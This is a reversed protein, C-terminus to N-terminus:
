NINISKVILYLVHYFKLYFLHQSKKIEIAKKEQSPYYGKLKPRHNLNRILYISDIDDMIENFQDSTFVVTKFVSVYVFIRLKDKFTLHHIPNFTTKSM